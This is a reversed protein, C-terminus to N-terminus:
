HKNKPDIEIEVKVLDDPPEMQDIESKVILIDISWCIAEMWNNICKQTWQWNAMVICTNM